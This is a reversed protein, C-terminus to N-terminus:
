QGAVARVEPRNSAAIRRRAGEPDPGSLALRAVKVAVPEPLVDLKGLVVIGLGRTSPDTVWQELRPEIEAAHGDILCAAARLGAWPPQQAHDVVFLLDQVPDDALAEVEACSPAPDRVSLAEYVAQQAPSPAVPHAEDSAAPTAAAASGSMVCTCLGGAALFASSRKM